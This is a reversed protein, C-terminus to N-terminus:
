IDSFFFNKGETFALIVSNWEQGALFMLCQLIGFLLWFALIGKQQSTFKSFSQLYDIKFQIRDNLYARTKHIERITFGLAPLPALLTFGFIPLFAVGLATMESIFHVFLVSYLVCGLAMGPISGYVAWDPLKDKWLRVGWYCLFPIVIYMLLTLSNDLDFPKIERKFIYIFMSGLIPSVGLYLVEPFSPRKKAPIPTTNKILHDLVLDPDKQKKTKKRKFFPFLETATKVLPVLVLGIGGLIWIITEM